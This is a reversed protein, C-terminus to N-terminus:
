APDNGMQLIYFTIAKQQIISIQKVNECRKVFICLYADPHTISVM